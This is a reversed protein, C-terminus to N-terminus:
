NSKIQLNPTLRDPNLKEISFTGIAVYVHDTPAVSRVVTGVGIGLVVRWM